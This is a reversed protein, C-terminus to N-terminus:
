AAVAAAPVAVTHRRVLKAARYRLTAPRALVPRGELYRRLDGALERVDAYRVRADKALAKAAIRELDGGLQRRLQAPALGRKEAEEGSSQAAAQGLPAPEQESIVRALELFSGTPVKYPRRGSLLELPDRG